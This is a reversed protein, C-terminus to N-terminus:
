ADINDVMNVVLDNSTLDVLLALYIQKVQAIHADQCSLNDATQVHRLLDFEIWQDNGSLYLTTNPTLVPLEHMVQVESVILVLAIPLVTLVYCLFIRPLHKLDM